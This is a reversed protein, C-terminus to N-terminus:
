PMKFRIVEPKKGTPPAVNRCHGNYKPPLGQGLMAQKQAELDEKSCYCYYAKEEKLLRELHKRYLKTRESQRYPGHHGMASRRQSSASNRQSKETDTQTKQGRLDAYLGREDAGYSPGEDWTLGLWKLSELIDNEHEKTSRETDTNEIRLLFVGDHQRAFLWNFLATRASGVHFPGTPSPAFRVRVKKTTM